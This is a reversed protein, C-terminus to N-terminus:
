LHGVRLKTHAGTDITARVGPQDLLALVPELVAREATLQCLAADDHRHRVSLYREVYVQLPFPM